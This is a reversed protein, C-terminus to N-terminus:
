LVITDPPDFLACEACNDSRQSCVRVTAIVHACM